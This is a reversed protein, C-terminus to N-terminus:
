YMTLMFWRTWDGLMILCSVVDRDDCMMLTLMFWRTWDGLMILCNVVDHEDCMMM